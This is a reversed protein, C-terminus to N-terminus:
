CIMSMDRTPQPGCNGNSSNIWPTHPTFLDDGDFYWAAAEQENSGGIIVSALALTRECKIVRALRDSLISHDISAFYKRVDLCLAYECHRAARAAHAVAAHTGKGKRCAFSHASFRQEFVPELVQTLAHHVVRDLFPAASILRPKPERIEFVRYAGPRYSGELLANRLRPLLSEQRALFEAVDPRSRKGLAARHAAEVLNPWSTLTEWLGGVRKM